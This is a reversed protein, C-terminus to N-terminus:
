AYKVSAFFAAQQFRPLTKLIALAREAEADAIVWDFLGYSLLDEIQDLEPTVARQVVPVAAAGGRQQVVHTLEHAMLRHDQESEGQRLYVDYGHTFARASIGAAFRDADPGTHLRVGTFDQGFRPEMFARTSASLPRGGGAPLPADVTGAVPS